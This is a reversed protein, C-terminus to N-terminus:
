GSRKFKQTKVYSRKEQCHQNYSRWLAFEQFNLQLVALTTVFAIAYCVYMLKKKKVAGLRETLM